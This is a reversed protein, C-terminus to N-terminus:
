SRYSRISGSNRDIATGQSCPPRLMLYGHDHLPAILEVKMAVAAIRPQAHTKM